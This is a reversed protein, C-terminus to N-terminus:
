AQSSHRAESQMAEQKVEESNLIEYFISEPIVGRCKANEKNKNNERYRRQIAKFKEPNEKRWKSKELDTNKKM